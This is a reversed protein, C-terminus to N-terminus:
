CSVLLTGLHVDLVSVAKVQQNFGVVTVRCGEVNPYAGAKM